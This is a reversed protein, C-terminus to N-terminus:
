IATNTRLPALRPDALLHTIDFTVAQQPAECKAWVADRQVQMHWSQIRTPQPNGIACCSLVAFNNGCEPDRVSEYQIVEAACERAADALEQCPAYNAHSKWLLTDRDLPATTLDLLSLTELSLSFATYEVSNAPFPTGPAEALILLRLFAMEAMATTSSECCYLVGKTIGSRRFRSGTPYRGSYRFPTYLLWNLHECEAPVPPKSQEIEEELITQDGASRVLKMTSKKHQAEVARWCDRKLPRLEHSLADPTWITLSM